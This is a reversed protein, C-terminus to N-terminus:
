IGTSGFGGIRNTRQSPQILTRELVTDINKVLHAQALKDGNRIKVGFVSSTMLPIHSQHFYDSDIIGIQNPFQLFKKVGTSSRLHIQVHYGKPIDFIIGCPIMYNYGPKIHLYGENDLIVETEIPPNNPNNWFTKIRCDKPLYVALDFCAAEETAFKLDEVEESVKYYKLLEM